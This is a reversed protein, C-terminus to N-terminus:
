NVLPSFRNYTPTSFNQQQVRQQHYKRQHITRWKSAMTSTNQRTDRDNNYERRLMFVYRTLSIVNETAQLKDYNDNGLVISQKHPSALWLDYITENFVSALESKLSSSKKGVQPQKLLIVKKLGQNSKLALVASSFVNSATM